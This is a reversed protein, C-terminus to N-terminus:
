GKAAAREQQKIASRAGMSFGFWCMFLTVLGVIVAGVTLYPAVDAAARADGTAAIAVNELTLPIAHFRFIGWVLALSLAAVVATALLGFILKEGGTPRRDTQRVHSQGASMAAVMAMVVGLSSPLPLDPFFYGLAMIAAQGAVFALTFTALLRIMPAQGTTGPM